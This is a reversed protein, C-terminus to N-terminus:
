HVIKFLHEIHFIFGHIDERVSLDDKHNLDVFCHRVEEYITKPIHQRKHYILPITDPPPVYWFLVLLYHHVNSLIFEPTHERQPLFIFRSSATLYSCIRKSM